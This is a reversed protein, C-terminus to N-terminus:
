LLNAKITEATRRDNEAVSYYARKSRYMALDARKVVAQLPEGPLSTSMGIAVSLPRTSHFQNNLDILGEITAILAHGDDQGMQPMLIGFEDGGLRAANAPAEVSKGLVEGLRRLLADGAEHGHEDNAAKLGNLDLIVVTVPHTRRRELRRLEDIFFSRSYLKTLADHNGLFELYAEAKKRATIDVLAIQVLSWDEEHGPLVSFQLHVYLEHGDLSHNIVERQQFLKGDWLDHLQQRFTPEMERGFIEDARSILTEKDPAGFLTLTQQNVDLVRIERMCRRVFEPHVDTFAHFDTIGQARAGDLLQKIRSFDEVWLSVPSHEFLGRAYNESHIMGRRATERATVDDMAILVRKWDTESGPLIRGKLDIDLRRGDATYNATQSFFTTQGQWLQDLERQLSHLMEERLLGDVDMHLESADAVGFLNLTAQNVAVIQMARMCARIRTRDAKLHALLDVVGDARWGDLLAKLASYDEIWLALPANAFVHDTLEGSM